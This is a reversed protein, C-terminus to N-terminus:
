KDFRYLRLTDAALPTDAAVPGSEPETVSKPAGLGAEGTEPNYPIDKVVRAPAAVAFAAACVAAAFSFMRFNM